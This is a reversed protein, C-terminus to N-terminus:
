ATGPLGNTPSAVTAAYLHDTRDQGIGEVLRDYTEIRTAGRDKERNEAFTTAPGEAQQSCGTYVASFALLLAILVLTSSKIMGTMAKFYQAIRKM